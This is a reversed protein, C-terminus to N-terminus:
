MKEGPLEFDIIVRVNTGIPLVWGTLTDLAEAVHNGTNMEVIEKKCPMGDESYVDAAIINDAKNVLRTQLCIEKHGRTNSVMRAANIM